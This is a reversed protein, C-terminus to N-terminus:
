FSDDSDYDSDSDAAAALAAAAVATKSHAAEISDQSPKPPRKRAAKAAKVHEANYEPHDPNWRCQENTHIGYEEHFKCWTYNKMIGKHNKRRVTDTTYIYM